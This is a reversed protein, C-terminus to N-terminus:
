YSIVESGSSITFVTNGTGDFSLYKNSKGDDTLSVNGGCTMGGIKSIDTETDFTYDLLESVLGGGMAKDIYDSNTDAAAAPVVSALIGLLAILSVIRKKM